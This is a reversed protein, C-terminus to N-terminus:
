DSKFIYDLYTVYIIYSLIYSYKNSSLPLFIYISAQVETIDPILEVVVITTTAALYELVLECGVNVLLIVLSVVNMVSWTLVAAMMIVIVVVIIVVVELTVLFSVVVELTVLFSLGGTINVIWTVFQKKLM